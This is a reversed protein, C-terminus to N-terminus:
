RNLKLNYELNITREKNLPYFKSNKAATIGSKDLITYGSSKIIKIDVVEGKTSIQLKLKLIGEYGRKLALEPYKPKICSLCTIKEIGKGKLSGKEIQNSNLNGESGRDKNIGSDRPNIIYKKEKIVKSVENINLDKDEKQLEEQIEKKTEKEKNIIERIKKDGNKQPKQFYEGKSAKSPLDIIEIPIIKDGLSIEKNQGLILFLVIHILISTLVYFNISGINGKTKTPMKM